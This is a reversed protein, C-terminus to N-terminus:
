RTYCNTQRTFSETSRLMHHPVQLTFASSPRGPGVLGATPHPPATRSFVAKLFFRYEYIVSRPTLSLLTASMPCKPANSTNIDYRSSFLWPQKSFSRTTACFPVVIVMCAALLGYLAYVGTHCEQLSFFTQLVVRFLLRPHESVQHGDLLQKVMVSASCM